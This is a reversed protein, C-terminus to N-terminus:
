LLLAHLWEHCYNIGNWHCLREESYKQGNVISCSLFVQNTLSDGLLLVRPNRINTQEPPPPTEKQYPICPEWLLYNDRYGEKYRCYVTDHTTKALPNSRPPQVLQVIQVLSGRPTTYLFNDGSESYRDDNDDGTWRQPV